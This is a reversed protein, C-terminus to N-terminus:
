GRGDTSWSRTKWPRGGRDPRNENAQLSPEVSWVRSAHGALVVLVGHRHGVGAGGALHRSRRLMDLPWQRGAHETARVSARSEPVGLALVGHDYRPHGVDPERPLGGPRHEGVAVRTRSFGLARTVTPRESNCAP